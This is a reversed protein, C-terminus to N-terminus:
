GIMELVTSKRHDDALTSPTMMRGNGKIAAAKTRNRDVGAAAWSHISNALASSPKRQLKGPCGFTSFVV